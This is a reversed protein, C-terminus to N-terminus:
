LFLIASSRIFRSEATATRRAFLRRVKFFASFTGWVRGHQLPFAAKRREFDLEDMRSLRIARNAWSGGKPHDKGRRQNYRSSQQNMAASRRCVMFDTLAFYRRSWGVLASGQGSAGGDGCALVAEKDQPLADSPQVPQLPETPM